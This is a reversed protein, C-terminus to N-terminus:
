DSIEIPGNDKAILIFFYFINLKLLAPRQHRKSALEWWQSRKQDIFQYKASLAFSSNASIILAIEYAYEYFSHSNYVSAGLNFNM